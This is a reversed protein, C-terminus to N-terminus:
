FRFPIRIEDDEFLINDLNESEEFSICLEPLKILDELRILSGQIGVPTDEHFKRFKLDSKPIWIRKKEFMIYQQDLFKLMKKKEVLIDFEFTNYTNNFNNYYDKIGLKIHNQITYDLGNLKVANAFKMLNSYDALKYSDFILDYKKVLYFYMGSTFIDMARGIKNEIADDLLNRHLVYLIITDNNKVRLLDGITIRKTEALDLWDDVEMVDSKVFIYIANDNINYEKRRQYIKYQKTTDDIKSIKRYRVITRMDLKCKAKTLKMLQINNMKDEDLRFKTLQTAYLTKNQFLTFLKPTLLTWLKGYYVRFIYNTKQPNIKLYEIADQTIIKKPLSNIIEDRSAPRCMKNM